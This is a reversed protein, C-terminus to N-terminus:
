STKSTTGSAASQVAKQADIAKQEEARKVEASDDAMGKKFQKIGDAFDGMISSIKGKGGLLVLAVVLLILLHSPGLGMM